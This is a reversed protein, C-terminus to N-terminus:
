PLTTTQHPSSNNHQVETVDNHRTTNKNKNKNNKDTTNNPRKHRHTDQTHTHRECTGNTGIFPLRTSHYWHPGVTYSEAWM